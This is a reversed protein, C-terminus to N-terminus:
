ALADAAEDSAAEADGFRYPALHAIMDRSLPAYSYTGREWSVSNLYGKQASFPMLVDDHPAVYWIGRDPFAIWIDRGIYKKDVTWRGKLQVKKLDGTAESYLILDIGPDYVPLFAVYEQTLAISVLANRNIVEIVEARQRAVSM